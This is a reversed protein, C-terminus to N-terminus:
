GGGFSDKSQPKPPAGGGLVVRQCDVSGPRHWRVKMSQQVGKGQDDFGYHPEGQDTREGEASYGLV